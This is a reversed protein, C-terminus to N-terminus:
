KNGRRSSTVKTTRTLEIGSMKKAPKIQGISAMGAGRSHIASKLGLVHAILAKKASFWIPAVQCCTACCQVASQDNVTSQPLTAYQIALRFLLGTTVSLRLQNREVAWLSLWLDFVQHVLQPAFHRGKKIPSILWHSQFTRKAHKLRELHCRQFLGIVKDVFLQNKLLM